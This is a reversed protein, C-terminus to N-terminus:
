LEQSCIQVIPDDKTDFKLDHIVIIHWEQNTDWNKAGYYSYFNLLLVVMSLPCPYNRVPTKYSKTMKPIFNPM